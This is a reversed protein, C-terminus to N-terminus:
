KVFKLNKVSFTATIQNNGAYEMKINDLKFRLESDNELEFIFQSVDIYNGKVKITLENSASTTATTASTTSAAMTSNTKTTSNTTNTTTASNTTNNTTTSNTTNNTTNNTTTNTTTSSTTSAGTSSSSSSSNTNTVSAGASGTATGSTTNTTTAASSTGGPENLTLTLNNAKAYNGLKVWMYEINYTEQTTADKIIAITEDSIADYQDKQKKYDSKSLEVAKISADYNTKANTLKTDLSQITSYQSFLTKESVAKFIGFNVDVVFICVILAIVILGAIVEFIILKKNEIM